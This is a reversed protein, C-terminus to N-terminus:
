IVQSISILNLGAEKVPDWTLAMVTGVKSHLDEMAEERQNRWQWVLVVGNEWGALIRGDGMDALAMLTGAGERTLNALPRIVEGMLKVVMLSGQGSPCAVVEGGDDQALFLGKCFGQHTICHSVIEKWKVWEQDESSFIKVAEFRGQCMMKAGTGDGVIVVWLIGRTFAEFSSVLRWSKCCYIKVLGTATGVVLHSETFVLCAIAEGVTLYFSPPPPGMSMATVIVSM